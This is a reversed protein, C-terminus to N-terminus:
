WSVPDSLLPSAWVTTDPYQLEGDFQLFVNKLNTDKQAAYEEINIYPYIFQIKLSFQSDRYETSYRQSKPLSDRRSSEM